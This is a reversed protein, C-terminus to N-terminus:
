AWAETAQGYFSVPCRKSNRNNSKTRTRRMLCSISPLLFRAMPVTTILFVTRLAKLFSVFSLPHGAPRGVLLPPRVPSAPASAFPHCSISAPYPVRSHTYTHTSLQSSGLLTPVDRIWLAWSAPALESHITPPIM